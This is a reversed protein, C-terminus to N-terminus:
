RGKKELNAFEDNTALDLGLAFALFRVGFGGANLTKDGRLTELMFAM